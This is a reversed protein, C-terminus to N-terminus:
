HAAALAGAIKAVTNVNRSTLRPKYKKSGLVKAGFDSQLTGGKPVLWIADPEARIFQEDAARPLSDYLAQLEAPLAPDDCFLVYQHTDAPVPIAQAAALVAHIEDGSRLLVHAEYGFRETLGREIRAQLARRDHQAEPVHFIVNGTALMTQAGPFGLEAFAQRLDEMRIKVGGVNIGRLLACFVESM